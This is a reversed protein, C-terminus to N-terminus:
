LERSSTTIKLNKDTEEKRGELCRMKICIESEREERRV